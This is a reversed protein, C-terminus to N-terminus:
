NSESDVKQLLLSKKTQILVETRVRRSEFVKRWKRLIKLLQVILNFVQMKM